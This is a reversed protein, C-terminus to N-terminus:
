GLTKGLFRLSKELRRRVFEYGHDGPAIELTHPIGREKLISDLARHGSALGYRDEAGCDLYLAPTAKPDAKRALALPDNASWLAADIPNGFVAAFAAMHWRGAGQEASPVRELLMASHTAVARYLSPQAFALRLAAYGGMSVGLAARGDRGPTVRYTREVHAVLDRTAMEEYRGGRANAFFSNGGDVAVLVLEPVAGQTRLGALIPALGRREWFGSGEFLGHFAYVVPYRKSPSADYSPPLDVVYSVERGLAESRFTETRVEATAAPALAALALVPGALGLTSHRVPFATRASM